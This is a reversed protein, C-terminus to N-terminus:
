NEVFYVIGLRVMPIRWVFFFFFFADYAHYPFKFSSDKSKDWNLHIVLASAFPNPM